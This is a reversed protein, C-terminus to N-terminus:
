PAQTERPLLWVGSGVFFCFFVLLTNWFHVTCGALCFGMMSIIWGLRIRKCRQDLHKAWLLTLLISIVTGSLFCFAPIGYRMSTLLWFNDMSASLLWEARIWDHLGLGFWPHRMVEDIGYEWIVIRGYATSPNLTLYSIAVRLPNRNSLIDIGLYILALAGAFSWWKRRDSGPLFNWVILTFQSMLTTIAGSSFSAVTAISIGVSRMIQRMGNGGLVFWSVAMSNGCFVGYLIPHDFTVFARYFGMRMDTEPLMSQGGVLAAFKRIYSVGTLSEPVALFMLLLVITVFIRCFGSFTKEDRIYVRALLYAGFGDLCFSGGTELAVFIGHNVLLSLFSWVFFLSFLWDCRQRKVTGVVLKWFCPLILFLFMARYWSLYLPGIKFGLEPPLCLAVMFCIVPWGADRIVAKQQAAM